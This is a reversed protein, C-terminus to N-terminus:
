KLKNLDELEKLFTMLSPLTPLSIQPAVIENNLNENSSAVVDKSNFSTLPSSPLTNNVQPQPAFSVSNSTSNQIDNNSFNIIKDFIFQNDMNPNTHKEKKVRKKKLNVKPNIFKNYENEKFIFNNEEIEVYNVKNRDDIFNVFENHSLNNINYFNNNVDSININFNNNNNNIIIQNNNNTSNLYNSNNIIHFPNYNSFEIQRFKKIQEDTIDKQSVKDFKRKKNENFNILTENYQDNIDCESNNNNFRTQVFDLKNEPFKEGSETTTMYIQETATRNVPNVLFGNSMRFHFNNINNINNINNVNTTNNTTNFNGSNNINNNNM